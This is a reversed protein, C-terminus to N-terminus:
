VSRGYRYWLYFALLVLLMTVIIFWRALPGSTFSALGALLSRNNIPNPSIVPTASTEPTPSFLQIAPSTNPTIVPSILRSQAFLGSGNLSPVVSQRAPESVPTPQSTPNTTQLALEQASLGISGNPGFSGGGGGGGSSSGGSSQVEPEPTPTPTPSPTPTTESQSAMEEQDSAIILFDGFLLPLNSTALTIIQGSQTTQVSFFRSFDFSKTTLHFPNDLEFSGTAVVNPATAQWDTRKEQIVSYNGIQPVSLSFKGQDSTTAIAFLKFSSTASEGTIFRGIAVFWNAIGLEPTEAIDQFIGDRNVDDFVLGEVVANHFNGFNIDDQNEEEGLDIAIFGDAPAVATWGSQQVEKIFYTGPTLNIFDYRGLSNTQTSALPETEFNSTAYIQITWGELGIEDEDKQGNDNKDEYKIGSISSPTSPPTPTPTPTPNATPSPSETPEPTPEDTPSPTPSEIPSATPSPSPSETATGSITVDDLRFVDTTGNLVARFRIQINASAVASFSETREFWSNSALTAGDFDHLVSWNQSDSSWEVRVHDDDATEFGNGSPIRYWYNLSITQSGSVSITKLLIGEPNKKDGDVEARRDGSHANDKKNIIKWNKTASDWGQEKFSSDGEFGNAFIVTPTPTAVDARSNMVYSFPLYAFLGLFIFLAVSLVSLREFQTDM